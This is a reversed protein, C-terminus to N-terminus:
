RIRDNPKPEDKQTRYGMLGLINSGKYIGRFHPQDCKVNAQLLLSLQHVLVCFM